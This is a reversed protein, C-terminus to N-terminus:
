SPDIFVMEDADELPVKACVRQWCAAAGSRLAKSESRVFSTPGRPPAPRGSVKKRLRPSSPSAGPVSFREGRLALAGEGLPKQRGGGVSASEVSPVPGTARRGCWRVRSGPPCAVARRRGALPPLYAAPGDSTAMAEKKAIELV